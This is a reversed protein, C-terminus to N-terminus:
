HVYVSGPPFRPQLHVLTPDTWNRPERVSERWTVRSSPMILRRHAETNRGFSSAGIMPELPRHIERYKAQLNWAGLVRTICSKYWTICSTRVSDTALMPKYTRAAGPRWTPCEGKQLVVHMDCCRHHGGRSLTGTKCRQGSATSPLMKDFPVMKQRQKASSPRSNHKMSAATCCRGYKCRREVGQSRPPLRINILSRM